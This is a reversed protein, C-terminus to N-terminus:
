VEETIVNERPSGGNSPRYLMSGLEYPRVVTYGFTALRWAICDAVGDLFSRDTGYGARPELFLWFDYEDFDSSDAIAAIVEIGLASCRFYREEVYNSSQRREWQACGLATALDCVFADLSQNAKKKIYINGNM